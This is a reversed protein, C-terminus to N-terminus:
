PKALIFTVPFSVTGAVVKGRKRGPKWKCKKVARVVLAELDRHLRPSFSVGTVAGTADISVSAVARGEVRQRRLATPYQLWPVLAAQGGVIGPPSDFAKKEWSFKDDYSITSARVKQVAAPAQSLGSLVVTCTFIGVRKFPNLM